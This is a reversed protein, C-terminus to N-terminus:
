TVRDRRGGTAAVPGSGRFKSQYPQGNQMLPQSVLWMLIQLASHEKIQM